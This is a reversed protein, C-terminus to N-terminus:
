VIHGLYYEVSDVLAKWSAEIIDKSVGVTRWVKHGNTSSILVRVNSATSNESGLVRVKYDLLFMNKLSPYFVELAKRLALDLANVPGDGEAATIEYKGDVSIKITAVSSNQSSPETVFVNFQGLEFHPKFKGLEKAMLLELSSEAGEFEYGSNEMEKLKDLIVKTEISDRKLSPDVNQLVPLIASRGAVESMLIRRKNGVESPPMHEYSSPKKIVADSHMGGKHAFAAAGVYPSRVDQGINAVECISRATQTLLNIKKDPVCEYGLKLQLDPIITCLDANGCREGFGGFTGQIHTAGGRVAFISNAVAMGIDNHTHIGIQVGDFKECVKKTIEEIEFPFTAGNTDCLVLACAGADAATQLSQMAYDANAKYGDFFHEADFFVKRENQVFYSITSHIIQLNEELTANLIDTVHMDWSKGFVSIYQTNTGLVTKIANDDEPKVGIRHTSTFAVLKSHKLEIEQASQFFEFDKPNSAPNGGEIFDIELEDLYQIVALKDQVSFSVGEGQAGDRLTSDFISIRKQM